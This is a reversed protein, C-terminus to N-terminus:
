HGSWRIAHPLSDEVPRWGGGGAVVFFEVREAFVDDLFELVDDAAKRLGVSRDFGYTPFDFHGHTLDGVSVIWGCAEAEAEIKIAGILPNPSRIVVVDGRVETDIGAFRDRIRELLDHSHM